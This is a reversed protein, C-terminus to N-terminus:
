GTSSSSGLRSQRAWALGRKYRDILFKLQPREANPARDLAAEAVRVATEFRGNAALAAALTDLFGWYQWRAHECAEVARLVAVVPDRHEPNQDTALRWAIDNAAWGLLADQSRAREFLSIGAGFDDLQQAASYDDYASRVSRNGIAANLTPWLHKIGDFQSRNQAASAAVTARLEVLNVRDEIARRIEDYEAKEADSTRSSGELPPIPNPISSEDIAWRAPELLTRETQKDALM